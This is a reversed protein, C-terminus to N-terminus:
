TSVSEFLVFCWFTRHVSSLGSYTRKEGSARRVDSVLGGPTTPPTPSVTPEATPPTVSVRPFVTETRGGEGRGM